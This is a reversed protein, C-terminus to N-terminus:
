ANGAEGADAPPVAPAEGYSGDTDDWIVDDFIIDQREATPHYSQPLAPMSLLALLVGTMAALMAGRRLPHRNAMIRMLFFLVLIGLATVALTIVIAPGLVQWFPDTRAIVPNLLPLKGADEACAKLLFPLAILALAAFIRRDAPRAPTDHNEDM